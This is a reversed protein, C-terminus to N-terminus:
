KLYLVYTGILNLIIQNGNLSPSEAEFPVLKVNWVGEIPLLLTENQENTKHIVAIQEWEGLSGIDKLHFAITSSSTELSIVHRQVEEGTRLRFAGHSKRLSILSRVYEVEKSYIERLEWDLQNIGDNSNYSNEVGKKNRFFEQGAHIFPIGESLIVMSTALLQFKRKREKSQHAISINMKDWFTYNDHCEVYNVSQEPDKVFVPSEASYQVIGKLASCADHKKHPNDLAYGTDYQLFSSGKISDRFHDNFFSIGKMKSANSITAKRDNPLPTSLDWGEGIFLIDRKIKRAEVLAEQMTEVDLIGMLDFRLGDVDYEQLWYKISDIIFKKVMRRESAIDNGVGTGNSPYGYEDMRFYYGPVIKEFPSDEHLYVHNYVVDMIVKLGCQHVAQIAEKLELIRSKPDDAKLSYSGEPANFHVPNYGWNYQKDPNREDVGGFDNFPLLELHTIGLEKLYTIGSSFGEETKTGQETFAKYKGKHVIGSKPHISFDRIHLEYIVADTPQNMEPVITKEIQLKSPDLLVGMGGNLTVAKGYPDVTERWSRNVFVLYTYYFDEYEKEIEITWVGRDAREMPFSLNKEKSALKLIVETATPAWLKCEITERKFITGLSGTYEYLKEFEASRIVAGIQLDAAAGSADEVLYIEGLKIDGDIDCICKHYNEIEFMERIKLPRKGEQNVLHFIRTFAHINEKPLLITITHFDDLYADFSREVTLM